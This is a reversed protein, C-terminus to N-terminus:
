SSTRGTKARIRALMESGIRQYDGNTDLLQAPAPPRQKNAIQIVPTPIPEGAALKKAWLNLQTQAAKRTEAETHNYRHMAKRVDLVIWYMVPHSWPFAEASEHLDHQASYRDFEAIVDDISPLGAVAAAGERCWGIFKGCSPWFDTAQQRAMRMGAKVQELSTIGNEAFALIWQRKAAAVDEPTSLATQRAAPFIQMLNTFLADVLKEAQDNVVRRQPEKPMMSALAGGDRNQVVVMLKNM